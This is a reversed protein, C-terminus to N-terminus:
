IISHKSLKVMDRIVYTMTKYKQTPSDNVSIIFEM